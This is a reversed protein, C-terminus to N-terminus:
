ESSKDVGVRGLVNKSAGDGAECGNNCALGGYSHRSAALGSREPLVSPRDREDM